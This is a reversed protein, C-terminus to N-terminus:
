ALTGAIVLGTFTLKERNPWNAPQAQVIPAPPPPRQSRIELPGHGGVFPQNANNEPTAAHGSTPHDMFFYAPIRTESHICNM